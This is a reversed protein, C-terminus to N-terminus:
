MPTHPTAGAIVMPNATFYVRLRIVEKLLELCVDFRCVKDYGANDEYVLVDNTSILKIENVYDIRGLRGSNRNIYPPCSISVGVSSGPWFVRFSYSYHDLNDVTYGAATLIPKIDSHTKHAHEICRGIYM